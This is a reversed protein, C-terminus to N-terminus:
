EAKRYEESDAYIVMNHKNDLVYFNKGSDEYCTYLSTDDWRGANKTKWFTYYNTGYGPDNKAINPKDGKKDVPYMTMGFFMQGFLKISQVADYNRGLKDMDEIYGYPKSVYQLLNGDWDYTFDLRLTPDTKKNAVSYTLMSKDKLITWVGTKGLEEAVEYPLSERTSSYIYTEPYLGRESVESQTLKAILKGTTAKAEGSEGGLKEYQIQDRKTAFIKSYEGPVVTAVDQYEDNELVSYPIIAGTEDIMFFRYNMYNGLQPDQDKTQGQGLSFDSVKGDQDYDKFNFTLGEKPFSLEDVHFISADLNYSDCLGDKTYTVLMFLTDTQDAVFYGSEPNKDISENKLSYYVLAMKFDDYTGVDVDTKSLVYYQNTEKHCEKMAKQIGADADGIAAGTSVNQQTDTPEDSGNDKKIANTLCCVAVIVVVVAAVVGIWKKAAKFKMVRKVRKRTNSEGFALMGVSIARHNTAFGLLSQSYAVRIDGDMKALVHEDCSMEMDRIMLHYSIWVLPNIWHLCCLLFAIMKIYNDGRRIHYKEHAIIYQQEEEQLRYPIYIKSHFLGMVFPTAIEDCQYINGQLRVAMAVKKKTRCLLVLNWLLILVVGAFWVYPITQLMYAQVDLTSQSSSTAKSPTTNTNESVEKKTTIEYQSDGNMEPETSDKTTYTNSMQLQGNVVHVRTQRRDTQKSLDANKEDSAATEIQGTPLTMVNFISFPSSIGGLFALRIGVILWLWYAYKKPAKALFVRVLLVVGIVVSASIGIAMMNMFLKEIMFVREESLRYKGPPLEDAGRRSVIVIM